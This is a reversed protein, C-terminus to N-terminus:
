SVPAGPLRAQRNSTMSLRHGVSIGCTVSTSAVLVYEPHLYTTGTSSRRIFTQVVTRPATLSAFQEEGPHVTCPCGCNRAIRRMRGFNVRGATGSSSPSCAPMSCRATCSQATRGSARRLHFHTRSIPGPALGCGTRRNAPGRTVCTLASAPCSSCRSRHTPRQIGRLNPKQPSPMSARLGALGYDRFEPWDLTEGAILTVYAGM